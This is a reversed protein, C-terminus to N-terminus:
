VQDSASWVAAFSALFADFLEGPDARRYHYVPSEASPVGHAHQNVLIQDDARYISQYLVEDHLRVELGDLKLLPQLTQMSDAVLAKLDEGLEEEAPQEESNSPSGLTIRVRVSRALRDRLSQIVEPDALLFHASYAVVDIHAKAGGLLALWDGRKLARRHAYAGALDAPRNRHGSAAELEPWLVEAAVDLLRTLSARSGPHPLQGQLWNRVTKPDVSLEASLDVETLGADYMARRLVDNVRMGVWPYIDTFTQHSSLVFHGYIDTSLTRSDAADGGTKLCARCQRRTTRLGVFSHGLHALLSPGLLPAHSRPEVWCNSFAVM